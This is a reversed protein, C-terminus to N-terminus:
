RLGPFVVGVMVIAIMLVALSLPALEGISFRTAPVESSDQLPLALSTEALQM